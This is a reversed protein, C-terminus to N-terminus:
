DSSAFTTNFDLKDPNGANDFCDVPVAADTGSQFWLQEITCYGPDDGYATVHATTFKEHLVPFKVIYTGSGTPGFGNAGFGLPYQFNTQGTSPTALYGFYKPPGFSAYVSRERHFSITFDGPAAKGTAPNHCMVYVAVDSGATDWRLIKCRSPQANPQQATVQVDGALDGAPSGVGAFRVLYIGFAVAGGSVPGGASNYSQALGGSVVQASAYAGDTAPNVTGSSVTWLVTFPTDAPGGGAKFCQVDVLEDVLSSNWRVIECFRGDDAVATVHVNGRAGFGIKPFRVVFRGTAVKGGTAVAGSPWSGFQYSAALPTGPPVTPDEVYAFGFRDATAAAAPQTPVLAAAALLATVAVARLRSRFLM